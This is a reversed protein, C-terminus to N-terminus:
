RCTSASSLSSTPRISRGRLVAVLAAPVGASVGCPAPPRPQLRALRHKCALLVESTDEADRVLVVGTGAENDDDQGVIGQRPMASVTIYGIDQVLVQVSGHQTVVISGIDDASRLIM